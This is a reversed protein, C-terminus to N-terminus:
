NNKQFRKKKNRFIKMEEYEKRFNKNSINLNESADKGLKQAQKTYFVSYSVSMQLLGFYKDKEDLVKIVFFALRFDHM